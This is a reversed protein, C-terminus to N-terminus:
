YIIYRSVPYNCSGLMHRFPRLVVQFQWFSPLWIHHLITFNAFQAMHASNKSVRHTTVLHNYSLHKMKTLIKADVNAREDVRM